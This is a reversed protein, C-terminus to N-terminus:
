EEWESPAYEQWGLIKWQGEETKRLIYTTINKETGKDDKVYYICEVSAYKVGEVTSYTVDASKGVIVRSITKNNDKYYNIEAELAELYENRPNNEVLEDDFIELAMDALQIIEDNTCEENYYCKQIRTFLQVVQCVTVPYSEELDKSLLKDTDRVIETDDTPVEDKNVARYYLLVVVILVLTITIIWKISRKM